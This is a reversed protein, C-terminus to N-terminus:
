SVIGRSQDPPRTHNIWVEAAILHNTFGIWLATGFFDKPTLGTIFSTAFFIGVIPRTTAVALGIAFARIMWERHHSINGKRIHFLGRVLSFLFVIGFLTTAATESVGSISMKFGMLIGTVGIILGSVLAIRGSWRHFGPAKQRIRKVFQTLGLGIFLLGPLIHMMTLWPNDVFGEEPFQPIGSIPPPSVYRNDIVPILFIFRRIVIMVGISALAVLAIWLLKQVRKNSM